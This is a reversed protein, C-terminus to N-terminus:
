RASRSSAANRTALMADVAVQAARAEADIALIAESQPEMGRAALGADFAQPNERIFKIDHM